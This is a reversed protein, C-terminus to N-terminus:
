RSEAVVDRLSGARRFRDIAHARWRPKAVRHLQTTNDARRAVVLERRQPHWSVATAPKFETYPAVRAALAAPIPPIGDAKLNANPEIKDAGCATAGALAVALLILRAASQM